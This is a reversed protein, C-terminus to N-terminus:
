IFRDIMKYHTSRFPGLPNRLEGLPIQVGDHVISCAPINLTRSGIFHIFKKLKGLVESRV